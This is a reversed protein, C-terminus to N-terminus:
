VQSETDPAALIVSRVVATTTKITTIAESPFEAHWLGGNGGLECCCNLANGEARGGDHTARPIL